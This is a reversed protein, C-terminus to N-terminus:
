KGKTNDDPNRALFKLHWYDANPLYKDKLERSLKGYETDFEKKNTGPPGWAAIASIKEKCNYNLNLAIEIIYGHKIMNKLEIQFSKKLENDYKDIKEDFPINRESKLCFEQLKDKLFAKAFVEAAQIEIEKNFNSSTFLLTPINYYDTVIDSDTSGRFTFEKSNEKSDTITM